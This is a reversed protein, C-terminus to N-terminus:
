PSVAVVPATFHCVESPVGYSRAVEGNLTSREQRSRYGFMPTVPVGTYSGLLRRRYTNARTIGFPFGFYTRNPSLATLPPVMQCPRMWPRGVFLGLAGEGAPTSGSRGRRRGRLPRP